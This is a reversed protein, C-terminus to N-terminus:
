EPRVLLLIATKQLEWTQDLATPFSHGSCVPVSVEVIGNEGVWAGSVPMSPVTANTALCLRDAPERRMTQQASLRAVDYYPSVSVRITATAADIAVPGRALASGPHAATLTVALLMARQGVFRGSGSKYSFSDKFAPSPAHSM